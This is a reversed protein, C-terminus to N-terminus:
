YECLMDDEIRCSYQKALRTEAALRKLIRSEAMGPDEQPRLLWSLFEKVDVSGDRNADCAEFMKMASIASFTEDVANILQCFEKVKMRGDGDEDHRSFLMVLEAERRSESDPSLLIPDEDYEEEEENPPTGAHVKAAVAEATSASAAAAAPMINYDLQALRSRLWLKYAQLAQGLKEAHTLLKRYREICWGSIDEPAGEYTSSALNWSLKRLCVPCLDVKDQKSDSEHLGSSGQMRCVYFQCHRMGLFHGVEKSLLGHARRLLIELDGERREKPYEEVVKMVDFDMRCSVRYWAPDMRCFSFIGARDRASISSLVFTQTSDFLDEMTIGLICFGDAPLRIRLQRLSDKAHYQVDNGHGNSRVAIGKGSLMPDHHLIKCPLGFWAELLSQLIRLDPLSGVSSGGPETLPLLYITHHTRSPLSPQELVYDKFTQPKEKSEFMWTDPIAPLPPLFLPSLPQLIRQLKNMEVPSSQRDPYMEHMQIPVSKGESLLRVAAEDHQLGIAELQAEPPPPV